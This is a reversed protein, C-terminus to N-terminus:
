HLEPPTPNKMFNMQLKSPYATLSHSFIQIAQLWYGARVRGSVVVWNRSTQNITKIRRGTATLISNWPNVIYSKIVASVRPPNLASNQFVANSNCIVHNLNRWTMDIGWFQNRTNQPASGIQPQKINLHQNKLHTQSGCEPLFLVRVLKSPNREFARNSSLSNVVRRQNINIKIQVTAKQILNLATASKQKEGALGHKGSRNSTPPIPLFTWILKNVHNLRAYTGLLPTHRAHCKYEACLLLLLSCWTAWSLAFVFIPFDLTAARRRTIANTNRNINVDEERRPNNKNTRPKHFASAGCRLWTAHFMIAESKTKFRGHFNVQMLKWNYTESYLWFAYTFLVPRIANLVRNWSLKNGRSLWQVWSVLILISLLQSWSEQFM